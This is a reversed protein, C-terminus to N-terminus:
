EAPLATRVDACRANADILVSRWTGGSGLTFKPSQNNILNVEREACDGGDVLHCGVITYDFMLPEVDGEVLASCGERAATLRLTTRSAIYTADIYKTMAVDVPPLGFPPDKKAFATIGPKGDGDHDALQLATRFPWTAGPDSLAAGLVSAGVDLVLEGARWEARGVFRPMSPQDFASVPIDNAFQVGDLLPTSTVVPLAVGCPVSEVTTGAATTTYTIKSWAQMLGKGGWYAVTDPWSMDVRMRMATAYKSPCSGASGADGQPSLGADAGADRQPPSGGESGADWQPQLDGEPRADARLSADGQTLADQADSEGADAESLAADATSANSTGTAPPKLSESDSADPTCGLWTLLGILPFVSQPTRV